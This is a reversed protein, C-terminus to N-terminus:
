QIYYKSDELLEFSTKAALADNSNHDQRANMADIRRKAEAARQLLIQRKINHADENFLGQGPSSASNVLQNKLPRQEEAHSM